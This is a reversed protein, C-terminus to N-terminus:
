EVFSATMESGAKDGGQDETERRSAASGFGEDHTPSFEMPVVTEGSFDVASQLAPPIPPRLMRPMAYWFHAISASSRRGTQYHMLPSFLFILIM